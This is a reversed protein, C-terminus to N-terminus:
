IIFEIEKIIIPRNLHDIEGQTLTPLKHNELFQDTEDVIDFTYM